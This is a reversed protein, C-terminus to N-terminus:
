RVPYLKTGTTADATARSQNVENRNQENSMTEVAHLNDINVNQANNSPPQKSGQGKGKDKGKGFLAM